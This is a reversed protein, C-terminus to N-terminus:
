GSIDCLKRIYNKFDIIDWGDKMAKKLSMVEGAENLCYKTIVMVDDIEVSVEGLWKDLIKRSEENGLNFFQSGVSPNDKFFEEVHAASMPRIFYKKNDNIVFEHRGGSMVSLSVPDKVETKSM